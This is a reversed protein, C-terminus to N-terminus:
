PAGRQCEGPHFAESFKEWRMMTLESAVFSPFNRVLLADAAREPNPQAKRCKQAAPAAAAPVQREEECEEELERAMRDRSAQVEVRLRALEEVEQETYFHSKAALPRTAAVRPQLRGQENYNQRRAQQGRDSDDSDTGPEAALARSVAVRPQVCEPQETHYRRAQQGRGSDDSDTDAVLARPAAVRPQGGLFEEAYTRPVAIRRPQQELHVDKYLIPCGAAPDVNEAPFRVVHGQFVPDEVLRIM